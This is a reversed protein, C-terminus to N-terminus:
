IVPALPTVLSSNNYIAAYCSSRRANIIPVILKDTEISKAM